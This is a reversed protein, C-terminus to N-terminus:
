APIVFLFLRTGDVWRWPIPTFKLYSHRHLERFGFVSRQGTRESVSNGHGWDAHLESLHAIKTHSCTWHNSDTSQILSLFSLHSPSILTHSFFHLHSASICVRPFSVPFWFFLRWAGKGPLFYGPLFPSVGFPWAAGQCAYSLAERRDWLIRPRSIIVYAFPKTFPWTSGM